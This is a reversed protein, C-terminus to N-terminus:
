EFPASLGSSCSESSPLARHYLWRNEYLFHSCEEMKEGSLCAIFRVIAEKEKGHHELIELGEFRTEHCFTLIESRWRKRDANYQPNNPHTTDIIYDVEEAAYASYRSKMLSLADPARGGQHYRRCCKKYKQGSGCPCPANPSLKKM